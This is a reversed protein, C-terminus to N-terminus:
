DDVTQSFLLGTTGDGGGGSAKLEIGLVRCADRVFERRTGFNGFDELAEKPDSNGTVPNWIHRHWGHRTIGLHDLFKPEFDVGDFRINELLLTTRWCNPRAGRCSIAWRLPIILPLGSDLLIPVRFFYDFKGDQFKDLVGGLSLGCPKSTLRIVAM